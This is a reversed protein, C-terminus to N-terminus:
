QIEYEQSLSCISGAILFLVILLQVLLIIPVGTTFAPHRTKSTKHHFAFMGLLIGISGFCIAFGLLVREPIRHKHKVAYHKDLGMLFYAVLNILLVVVCIIWMYQKPIFNSFINFM